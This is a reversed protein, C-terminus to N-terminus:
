GRAAAARRRALSEPLWQTQPDYFVEFAPAGGDLNVWPQKSRTFIHADPQVGSPQDLTGARVFAGYRRGGYHSWLAVHCAPCRHILQPTGSETATPIELTEGQILELRDTEIIANIVFASGTERQCWTCHCCNVFMPASALRYRVAGCACGGQLPQTM